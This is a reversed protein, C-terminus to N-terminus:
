REPFDAGYKGNVRMPPTEKPTGYLHPRQPPAPLDPEATGVYPGVFDVSVDQNKFWQWIRYRWTYDGENCHTISDGVVLVRLPNTISSDQQQAIAYATTYHCISLLILLLHAMIRNGRLNAALDM